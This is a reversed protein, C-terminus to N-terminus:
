QVRSVWSRSAGYEGFREILGRRTLRVVRVGVSVHGLAIAVTALVIGSFIVMAPRLQMLHAVAMIAPNDVWTRAVDPDRETSSIPLYKM